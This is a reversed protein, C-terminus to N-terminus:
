RPVRDVRSGLGTLVEYGITGLREAIETATIEETGQRGILVVEDGLEVDDDVVVMLQDMTVAGVIPCRRGGVLVEVGAAGSSRRVGDAYGAPVTAIRSPVEATWRRGYSVTEGPEITRLGTVTSVLRLAPRLNISGALAPSPPVGYMAIGLRVMDRRAAPHAIAGASNAAHTMPPQVGRSALVGLVDALAADFRRLQETTFPDTPDDAVACHTWIGELELAADDAIVSALGVADAPAVGVRHMGTDIKMHVRTPEGVLATLAAVGVESAATFRVGSPLDPWAHALVVPDPESLLLVPTDSPVAPGLSIAEAPTAVALWTAGADLAAGAVDAAGHGYGDAKVVACVEAGDALDRVLAVNHRIADLSIEARMPTM